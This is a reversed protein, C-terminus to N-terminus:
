LEEMDLHVQAQVVESDNEGLIKKMDELNKRAGDLNEKDINDYFAKILEIVELPRVESKMIERLISNIDRGYTTNQPRSIEYNDLILINEAPVNAVISPSHTTFIFQVNPFINILDKIIKKQWQPHLHMDIEDVLVVGPSELVKDLLQGNLTAMRYAIDAILSIAGKIGDSLLKMPLNEVEGNKYHTVIEIENTKVNFTFHVDKVQPNASLYCSNMAKKVANLEPVEKGESLQILTMKEFWSIMLKENSAADLSDVYGTLRSFNNSSKKIARSRKQMWLRGTGYYAVIPLVCDKNGDRVKAQLESAYNRIEKADVITTKRGKGKLERKWEYKKNNITAEAIIEVPFQPQKEINNGIAYMDYHADELHISNSLLDDFGSIYAGLAIAIVDLITSKGAGNIGLLVTFKSNLNLELDKFCRFNKLSINSIKM